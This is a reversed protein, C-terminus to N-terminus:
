LWGKFVVVEFGGLAFLVRARVSAAGVRVAHFGFM